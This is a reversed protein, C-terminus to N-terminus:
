RSAEELQVSAGDPVHRLQTQASPGNPLLRGDPTVLVWGSPVSTAAEAVPPIAHLRLGDSLRGLDVAATGDLAVSRLSVGAEGLVEHVLRPGDATAILASAAAVDTLTQRSGTRVDIGFIPCPLGPCAAYAVLDEGDLGVVTGLDPDALTRTPGGAPDFVRIRCAAEGCSQVALRDGDLDWSLETSFTRGFRDDPRIPELVRTAPGSGDVPRAWIGLDARTARDVRMEYITKGSADITARRIVASEEALAFSCEGVVDIAALRSTADDDSGVLVLRGFPGAAFSEAPLDIFRSARDGDTGLSLRQGQLAGDRDLTPDIRYWPDLRLDALAVPTTAAAAAPGGSDTACAPPTWASQGATLTATALWGTAGLAVVGPGVWRVWRSELM